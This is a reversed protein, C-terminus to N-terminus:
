AFVEQSSFRLTALLASLRNNPQDKKENIHIPPSEKEYAEVIQGRTTQITPIYVKGNFLGSNNTGKVIRVVTNVEPEEEAPKEQQKQEKNRGGGNGGGNEFTESSEEVEVKALELPDDVIDGEGEGIDFDRAFLTSSKSAFDDYVAQGLPVASPKQATALRLSAQTPQQGTAIRQRIAEGFRLKPDIGGAGSVSNM